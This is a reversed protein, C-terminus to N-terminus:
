HLCFHLLCGVFIVKMDKSFLGLVALECNRYYGPLYKRMFGYHKEGMLNRINLLYQYDNVTALFSRTKLIYDLHLVSFKTFANCKKKFSKSKIITLVKQIPECEPHLKAFKRILTRQSFISAAMMQRSIFRASSMLGDKGSSFIVNGQNDRLRIEDGDEQNDYYFEDNLDADSSADSLDSSDIETESFTEDESIESAESQSDDKESESEIISEELKDTVDDISSNDSASEDSLNFTKDLEEDSSESTSQNKDAEQKQLEQKRDIQCKWANFGMLKMVHDVDRLVNM